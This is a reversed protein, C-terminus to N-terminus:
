SCALDAPDLSFIAVVGKGDEGPGGQCIFFGVQHSLEGANSESGCVYVIVPPEAHDRSGRCRLLDEADVAASIWPAVDEFCFDYQDGSCIDAFASRYRGVVQPPGPFFARPN